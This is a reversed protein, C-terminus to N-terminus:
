RLGSGDALPGRSLVFCGRALMLEALGGRVVHDAGSFDHHVTGEFPVAVCLGCGAATIAIAGSTSDELALVAEYEKVELGIRQLAISYLDRHPKLRIESSDTATVVADYLTDTSQFLAVLERKLGGSVPWEAVQDRLVRLVEALVIDAEYRISSTVIGVKAPRAAFAACRSLFREREESTAGRTSKELLPVIDSGEAGLKGKLLALFIGVQGMPEVLHAKERTLVERALAPGRGERIGALIEHYRQYYITVAARVRDPFSAAAFRAELPPLFAGISPPPDADAPGAGWAPFAPDNRVEPLGFAALDALVETRRGPDRGLALTWASAWLFRRAFREPRASGAYTSVLYEVHRTTSNGIVNPLDRQPDFGSWAAKSWQGTIARVMFELSHICLPETTTTTGDMDMLVAKLERLGERRPRLPYFEIPSWIYSPNKVAVVRDAGLEAVLRGFAAQAEAPTMMAKGTGSGGRKESGSM